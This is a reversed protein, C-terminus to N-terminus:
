LVNFGRGHPRTEVGVDHAAADVAVRGALRPAVIWAACGAGRNHLAAVAARGAAPSGRVPAETQRVGRPLRRGFGADGFLAFYRLVASLGREEVLTSAAVFAYEYLAGGAEGRLQQVSEPFSGLASLSPLRVRSPVREVWEPLSGPGGLTM